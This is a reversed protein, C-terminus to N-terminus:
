DKRRPADRESEAKVEEPDIEIELDDVDGDARKADPEDDATVEPKVKPLRIARETDEDFDNKDSPM